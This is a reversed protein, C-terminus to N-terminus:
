CWNEQGSGSGAVAAPAEPLPNSMPYNMYDEGVYGMPPYSPTFGWPAYPSPYTPPANYPAGVDMGPYMPAYWAMGGMMVMGNQNPTMLPYYMNMNSFNGYPYNKAARRKNKMEQSECYQVRIKRDLWESGNEQEIAHTSADADKYRLFAFASRQTGASGKSDETEESAHRNVLTVSELEGYAQFREKLAEEEILQPNLGGVFINCKDVGLADPDNKSTAWEVVIGRQNARLENFASQADERDCFKVFGCGKSKQTHHNKIISVSEVPGYEEFMERLGSNSLNKPLKAVFLTCNVRAKEVRITRGKLTSGAAELLAKEADEEEQYQVFAYPRGVTRDKLLKVSVIEGYPAFHERLSDEDCDRPIQAVFLCAKHSAKKEASAQDKMSDPQPAISQSSHVIILTPSHAVEQLYLFTPRKHYSVSLFLGM